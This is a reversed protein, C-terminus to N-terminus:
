PTSLFALRDAHECPIACTQVRDLSGEQSRIHSRTRLRDDLVLELIPGPLGSAPLLCPPAECSPVQEGGKTDLTYTHCITTETDTLNSPFYRKSALLWDGGKLFSVLFVRLLHATESSPPLQASVGQEEAQSGGQCRLGENSKIQQATEIMIVVCVNKLLARKHGFRLLNDSDQAPKGEKGQLSPLCRAPQPLM